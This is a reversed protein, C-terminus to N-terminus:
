FPSHVRRRGDGVVDWALTMHRTVPPVLSLSEPPRAIGDNRSTGIKDVAEVEGVQLCWM